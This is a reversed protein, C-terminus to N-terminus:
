EKDNFRKQVKQVDIYSALDELLKTEKVVRGNRVAVYNKDGDPFEVLYCELDELCTGLKDERTAYDTTGQLLWWKIGSDNIFDPEDKLGLFNM